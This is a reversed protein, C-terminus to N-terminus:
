ESIAMSLLQMKNLFVQKVPRGDLVVWVPITLLQQTFMIQEVLFAMAMPM